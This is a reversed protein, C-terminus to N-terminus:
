KGKRIMIEDNEDYRKNECTKAHVARDAKLAEVETNFAPM